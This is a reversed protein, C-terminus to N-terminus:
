SPAKDTDGAQRGAQRGKGPWSSSTSSVQNEDASKGKETKPQGSLVASM